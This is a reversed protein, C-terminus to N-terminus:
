DRVDHLGGQKLVKDFGAVAFHCCSSGWEAVAITEHKSVHADPAPVGEDKERTKIHLEHQLGYWLIM